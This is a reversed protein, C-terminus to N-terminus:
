EVVVTPGPCVLGTYKMKGDEREVLVRQGLYADALAVARAEMRVGPMEVVLLVTSGRAVDYPRMLRSLVVRAGRPLTGRAALGAVQEWATVVEAGAGLTQEESGIRGPDLLAGRSVGDPATLVRLTFRVYQGLAISTILRGDVRCEVAEPLFVGPRKPYRVRLEAEGAPLTVPPLARLPALAVDVGLTRGADAQVLALVDAPAVVQGAEAALAKAFWLAALLASLACGLAAAALAAYYGATQRM